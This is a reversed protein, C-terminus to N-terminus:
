KKRGLLSPPDEKAWPPRTTLERPVRARGYEEEGTILDMLIDAFLRGLWVMTAVLPLGHGKSVSFHQLLPMEKPTLFRVEVSLDDPNTIELVPFEDMPSVSLLRMIVTGLDSEKDSVPTGYLRIIEPAARMAADVALQAGIGARTLEYVISTVLVDIISFKNWGESNQTEPFLGNRNRWARFTAPACPLTRLLTSTFFVKDTVLM